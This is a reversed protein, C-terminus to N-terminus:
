SSLSEILSKVAKMTDAPNVFTEQPVNKLMDGLRAQKGEELDVLKWGLSRLLVAKTVPYHVKRTVVKVSELGVEGTVRPFRKKELFHEFRLADDFMSLNNFLVYVIKGEEEFSRMTQHLKRLEEDSYQYYYMREGLGHLRFYAIEDTYTPLMKFPDTVHVVNVKRLTDALKKRAKPDDWARGRTEWLLTLQDRPIKRFFGEAAHIRDPTFTAATQILLIRAKLIECITRMQEFGNLCSKRTDLKYEHSIVKNAKVTFEFDKPAEERWKKVTTTKPFKYFTRNIEVLNFCDYYRKTAVPYGCCGVKIM